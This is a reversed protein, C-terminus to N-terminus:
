TNIEQTELTDNRWDDYDLWVDTHGNSGLAEQLVRSTRGPGSAHWRDRIEPWRAVAELFLAGSTWFFHTRGALDDPLREDVEYTALTDPGSEAARHTLRHWTVVRGALLDIGPRERDGLGDACGHVWIGRAALRRWTTTGAAWVMRDPSVTWADPLADARAVWYGADDAPPAIDLSRRTGHRREDPRPWIKALPVRAGDRRARSLSWAEDVRGTGSRGRISTVQGYERSLVTVGLAEHCGGGWDALVDREKVIANWTPAHSIAAVRDVLASDRRMEVALAGQAPAGPVDRLPLVMWRCDDLIQRLTRSVEDFPAGFGLLRDLAAKAMVLAGGEGDRLKRLRTPVNGRVPTFHLDTATWPLLTPLSQQLLYARRPSSSLVDLSAPRRAAVDRRMVLVDRPDARELTAVIATDPRGELPLDKWSHVVADAEGAMLADSLDATFAGKDALSALPTIRDRDGAASRTLYVVEVDPWRAELARGVLLAQLRALDSARSLIRITTKV